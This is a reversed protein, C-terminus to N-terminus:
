LEPTDLSHLFWCDTKRHFCRKSNYTTCINCIYEVTPLVRIPLDQFIIFTNITIRLVLKNHFLHQNWESCTCTYPRAQTRSYNILIFITNYITKYQQIIKDLGSLLSNHANLLMYSLIVGFSSAGSFLRFNLIWIRSYLIFSTFFYKRNEEANQTNM